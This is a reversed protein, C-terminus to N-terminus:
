YLSLARKRKCVVEPPLKHLAYLNPYLYPILLQLPMTRLLNMANSRLDTPIQSSQRLADHKILCLALLPLLKLNSPATLQPTSGPGSGLVHSKYVGLLDVMKNVVADRADDLKSTLAREVGTAASNTM